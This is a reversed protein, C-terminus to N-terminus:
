LSPVTAAASKEDARTATPTAVTKLAVNRRRQNLPAHKASSKESAAASSASVVTQQTGRTAIFRQASLDAAVAQSQHASTVQAPSPDYWTPDVEQQAFAPLALVTFIAAFLIAASMLNRSRNTNKSRKMSDGGNQVSKSESDGGRSSIMTHDQVRHDSGDMSVSHIPIFSDSSPLLLLFSRPLSGNRDCCRPYPPGFGGVQHFRAM